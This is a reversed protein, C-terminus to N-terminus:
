LNIFRRGMFLTTTQTRYQGPFLYFMAFLIPMQLLVPICGSIPNVGVQQYLKMQEQQVKTMDEGVREKIEDLEPKLVKMKAM